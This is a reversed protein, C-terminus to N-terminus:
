FKFLDKLKDGVKDGLADELKEKVQEKVQSKALEGVLDGIDPQCAAGSIRGRCKIPVKYGGLNYNKEGQTASKEDVRVKADYKISNDHLNAIMGKGTVKFGSGDLLLDNNMAVGNTFNITGSLSEFKTEGDKKIAGPQKSEVMVEVQQLITEIDVGRYVGNKVSFKAPGTLSKVLADSNNGTATLKADFNAIGAIDQNQVMDMMLPAANINTLTSNLSLTPVNGKANLGINGNYTGEYLNASVPNINVQGGNANISVKVDKMKAGSMILSGILLDGKIKLKRLTEVPLQAAGAAAAEPTPAKQKPALYSDLNISDIGLGFNLDPGAFDKVDIDGKLTTKDLKMNLGSLKVSKATGTLKTNMGFSTLAEPDQTKQPKGFSALVNRLNFPPVNLDGTFAADSKIKTADINGKVNMGLGTLSLGKLSLTEKDLNAQASGASLTVDVPKQQGGGAVSAVLNLPALTMNATTGSLGADVKLRKVSKAMDAQGVATLLDRLENGEITLKGDITGNKSNMNKANLKGDINLGAGQATLKSLDIRGVNPDSEFNADVNFSKNKGKALSKAIDHLGSDAGQFTAAIALLSPLDPGKANITGKVAPKDGKAEISAVNGSITNGMLNASLKPLNVKGDNANFETAVNFSKDKTGALASNLSTLTKADMGQLQGVLALLTPLDPGAATLSGNGNPKDTNANQLNVKGDVNAGLLKASFTPMTVVGSDMNADFETNFSFARNKVKGLQEAVPMELVKFILAIDEGNIDIKGNAGPRESEIDTANIDGTLKTGLGELNLGRVSAIGKDLDINVVANTTINAKGGPLKQGRMLIDLALPEIRYTEADLDYAITGDLKMDADLAPQNAVASAALNFAIPEGMTLAGTGINVKSVSIDQGTSADKWTLKADKIDVGGLVITAIEGGSREDEDKEGSALDAWNTHGQADKALNIQAGYLKVTDMEIQNKLLPMTAVAIQFEEAALFPEDGFGEANSLALPGAKIRLKPYFAWELDGDLSLQRGTEQQVQAIIHEKFDNPDAFAFFAAVGGIVVLVFVIALIILFKIAKM